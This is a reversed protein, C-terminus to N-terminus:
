WTGTTGTFEGLKLVEKTVVQRSGSMLAMAWALHRPCGTVMKLVLKVHASLDDSSVPQGVRRCVVLFIAKTDQYSTPMLQVEAM